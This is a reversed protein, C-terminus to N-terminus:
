PRASRREYAAHLSLWLRPSVLAASLTLAKFAARCPEECLGFARVWGALAEVPRGELRHLFLELEAREQALSRRRSESLALGNERLFAERHADLRGRVDLWSRLRGPDGRLGGYQNAGHLRRLGYSGPIHRIPGQKLLRPQFLEDCATFVDAPLPLVQELISRRVALGSMGTLLTKGALWDPLTWKLPERPLATPLPNLKADAQILAHQVAALGPEAEFAAAVAALKGPTWVDDTELFAVLDGRCRPLVANLAAAQGAHPLEIWEVRELFPKIRGRSDDTSGDDVILVELPAPAQDLVSRVADELFRGYQYNTLVATITM